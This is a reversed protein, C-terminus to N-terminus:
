CPVLSTKMSPKVLREKLQSPALKGVTGLWLPDSQVGQQSVDDAAIPTWVTHNNKFLIFLVELCDRVDTWMLALDWSEALHSPKELLGNSTVKPLCPPKSLQLDVQGRGGGYRVLACLGCRLLNSGVSPGALRERLPKASVSKM